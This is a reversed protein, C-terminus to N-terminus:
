GRDSGLSKLWEALDDRIRWNREPSPPKLGGSEWKDLDRHYKRYDGVLEMYDALQGKLTLIEQSMVLLNSQAENREEIAAEKEAVAKDREAKLDASETKRAAILELFDASNQEAVKAGKHQLYAIIAVVVGSILGIVAVMVSSEM